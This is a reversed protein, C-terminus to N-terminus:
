PVVTSAEMLIRAKPRDKFYPVLRDHETRMRKEILEGAETLTAIQSGKKELDMGVHEM